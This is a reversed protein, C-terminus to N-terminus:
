RVEGDELGFLRRANVSVLEALEPLPTGRVEAVVKATHWINGPHNQQGRVPVPALYPCDTELLLRDAPVQRAVERLEGSAKFTVIGSFSVYMGNDLAQKAESWGGTFCHLVGRPWRGADGALIRFADDYADRVHVVVPIERTRAWVVQWEFVERQRDPPSFNYHYDLGMEGAAIVRPDDALLMLAELDSVGYHRAEHPHVGVTSWVDANRRSLELSREATARDTAVDILPGVGAERCMALVEERNGTFAEHCLHAHTDIIRGM